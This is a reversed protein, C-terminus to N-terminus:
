YTCYINITCAGTCIEDLTAGSLNVTFSDEYYSDPYVTKVTTGDSFKGDGMIELKMSSPYANSFMVGFSFSPSATSSYGNYEIYNNSESVIGSGTFNDNQDFDAEEEIYINIDIDGQADIIISYGYASAVEKWVLTNGKYMEYIKQSGKYVAKAPTSGKYLKNVIIM